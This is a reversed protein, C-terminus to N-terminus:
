STTNRGRQRQVGAPQYNPDSESIGGKDRPINTKGGKTHRFARKEGPAATTQEVEFRSEVNADEFNQPNDQVLPHDAPVLEGRNVRLPGDGIDTWYTVTAKRMTTATSPM